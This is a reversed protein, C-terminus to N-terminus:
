DQSLEAYGFGAKGFYNGCYLLIIRQDLKFVYPYCVMQSDWNEKDSVTIGAQEDDRQWNMLDDSFAYGIRYGNEANRFNLAERYCFWMHYKGKHFIVTASNQCENITKPPIIFNKNLNWNIADDSFATKIQYVSEWGDDPSKVWDKGSSYFAQYENDKPFIFFGNVYHPDVKSIGFVPNEGVKSFTVGNDTSISIGVQTSYPYVKGRTWGQYYLNLSGNKMLPMTAHIGFESFSGEGGLELSPKNHIYLINSLDNKDVDIFSAQSVPKGDDGYARTSYFIRIRDEMVYPRPGQAYENAWDHKNKPNGGFIHGKKNWKM